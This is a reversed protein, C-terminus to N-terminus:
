DGGAQKVDNSASDVKQNMPPIVTQTPADWKRSIWFVIVLSVCEVVSVVVQSTFDEIGFAFYLPITAIAVAIVRFVGLDFHISKRLSTGLALVVIWGPVSFFSLFFGLAGDKYSACASTTTVATVIAAEFLIRLKM